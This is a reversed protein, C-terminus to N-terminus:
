EASVKVRLDASTTYFHENPAYRLTLSVESIDIFAPDNIHLLYDESNFYLDGGPRQRLFQYALNFSFHNKFENLHELRFTKNYFLKNNVGRKFSLLFNDEHM